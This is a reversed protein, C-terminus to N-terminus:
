SSLEYFPAEFSALYFFYHIPQIILKIHAIILLIFIIAITILM